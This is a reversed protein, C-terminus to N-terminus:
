TASGSPEERSEGRTLRLNVYGYLLLSSAWAALHGGALATAGHSRGLVLTIALLVACWVCQIAFQLWILGKAYLTQFLAVALTELVAAVLLLALPIAARSFGPGYLRLITPTALGVASALATALFLNALLYRGLVRRYASGSSLEVLLPSAVKSVLSPALLVILRITNAVSFLAVEVVGGPQRALIAVSAALAVGGTAGSLAAPLAFSSLVRWEERLGTHVVAIGEERCRAALARQHVAWSVGATIALGTASGALGFTHALVPAVVVACLGQVASARALAAFASLGALAGQQYGNLAFFLVFPAALRLEPGASPVGLSRALWPAGLIMAATLCAGTAVTVLQALGLIRGARAADKIRLEAVFRTATAGFGAAAFGAVMALANQLVGLTGFAEQGLIRANLVSVAFVSGQAMASGAIAWFVGVVMRRRVGTTPHASPARQREPGTSMTQPAGLGPSLREEREGAPARHTDVGGM